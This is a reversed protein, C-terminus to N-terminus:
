AYGGSSELGDKYYVYWTMPLAYLGVIFATVSTLIISKLLWSFQYCEDFYIEASVKSSTCQGAIGIYKQLYNWEFLDIYQQIYYDWYYYMQDTLNLKLLATADM